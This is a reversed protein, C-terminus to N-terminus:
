LCSNTNGRKISPIREVPAPLYRRAVRAGVRTLVEHPNTQAWQAWDAATPEGDDGPGFLFATDGIQVRADGVDVVFQDMAIRGAIPYRVGNIAVRARPWVCRLVGDAFGLPVLALTTERPTAYAFGYSVRTGAPVRKTLIVQAKLTMAPRLGFRRGAVPEIGYIAVGARTLDFRLEPVQLLAASNAIHRLSPALGAHRAVEVADAYLRPQEIHHPDSPDEANGLHSWIGVVRIIGHQELQRAAATLAPWERPLAGSRSLGTDVKLHVSAVHGTRRVAEAVCHLHATSAVSIDIRTAVAQTLDERPGYLWMLIPAAIGESRLQMAEAQTTVGLWSAGHALATRAVQAAGHGFGNAKVVAMLHASGAANALLATNHAIAALDITAETLGQMAAANVLENDPDDCGTAEAGEALAVSDYVPIRSRVHM